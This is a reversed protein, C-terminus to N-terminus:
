SLLSPDPSFEGDRPPSHYRELDSRGEGGIEGTCEEAKVRPRGCGADEQVMSDTMELCETLVEM